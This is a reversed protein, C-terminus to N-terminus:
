RAASLTVRPGDPVAVPLRPRAAAARAARAESAMERETLVLRVVLGVRDHVDLRRYLYRQHMRVTNTTINLRDAVEST